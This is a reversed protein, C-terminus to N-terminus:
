VDRPAFALIDEPSWRHGSWSRYGRLWLTGEIRRLYFGKPTEEDDDLPASAVTISGAPARHPTPLKGTAGEPQASLALRYYPALELPCLGLGVSAAREVLADFTAGASFGLAAVSVEAVQVTQPSESVAFRPDQFLKLALENLEVGANSLELLLAAKTLGGFIVSCIRPNSSVASAIQPPLWRCHSSIQRM